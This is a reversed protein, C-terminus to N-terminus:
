EYKKPDPPRIVQHSWWILLLLCALVAASKHWLCGEGWVLYVGALLGPLYTGWSLLFRYIRPRAVGQGHGPTWPGENMRNFRQWNSRTGDGSASAGVRCACLYSYTYRRNLEALSATVLLLGMGVGAADIRDTGWLKASVAVGIAALATIRTQFAKTSYHGVLETPDIM